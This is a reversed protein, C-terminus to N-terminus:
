GCNGGMQQQSQSPMTIQLTSKTESAFTRCMSMRAGTIAHRINQIKPGM